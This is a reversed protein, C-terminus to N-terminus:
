INDLLLPFGQVRKKTISLTKNLFHKSAHQQNHCNSDNTHLTLTKSLCITNQKIHM